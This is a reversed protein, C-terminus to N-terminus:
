GRIRRRHHSRSALRGPPLARLHTRDTRHREQRPIVRNDKRLKAFALWPELVMRYFAFGGDARVFRFETVYGNFYRLSGDERVVSITVMRAMMAKLPIRADDSLLEAEVRFCRSVEERATMRNPLLIAEPGDNRPFEMRMLRDHQADHSFVSLAAGAAIAQSGDM